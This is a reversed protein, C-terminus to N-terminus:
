FLKEPLGKFVQKSGMEKYRCILVDIFSGYAVEETNAPTNLNRSWAFM